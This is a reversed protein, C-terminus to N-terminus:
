LFTHLEMVEVRVVLDNDDLWVRILLSTKILWGGIHPIAAEVLNHEYELHEHVIELSRFYREVEVVSTGPPLDERIQSAFKKWNERTVEDATLRTGSGMAGIEGGFSFMFTILVLVGVIRIVRM